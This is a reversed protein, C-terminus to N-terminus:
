ELDIDSLKRPMYDEVQRIVMYREVEHGDVAYDEMVKDVEAWFATELKEQAADMTEQDYDDNERWRDGPFTKYKDAVMKHAAHRDWTERWALMTMQRAELSRDELTPFLDKDLDTWIAENTDELDPCMIGLSELEDVYREGMFYLLRDIEEVKLYSGHACKIYYIRDLLNHFEGQVWRLAICDMVAKSLKVEDMYTLCIYEVGDREYFFM